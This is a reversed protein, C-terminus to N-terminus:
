VEANAWRALVARHWGVLARDIAEFVRPAHLRGTRVALFDELGVAAAVVNGVARCEFRSPETTLASMLGVIGGARIEYAGADVVGSVVCLLRGAPEGKPLVREGPRFLVREARDFPPEGAEVLDLLEHSWVPPGPVVTLMEALRRAVQVGVLNAVAFVGPRVDVKLAMFRARDIRWGRLARTVDVDATRPGGDVMAVEGVLAGPGLTALRRGGRGVVLEGDEVLYMADALDGTSFLRTGAAAGFRTAALGVEDLLCGDLARFLEIGHVFDVFDRVRHVRRDGVERIRGAVDWGSRFAHEHVHPSRLWGGAYWTRDAGQLREVWADAVERPREAAPHVLFRAAVVHRPPRHPNVSVFVDEPLDLRRALSRPWFTIAPREVDGLVYNYAGWAERDLPMLSSDRHVVVRARQWRMGAFATREAHTADELLPIVQNANTALVVHDFTDDTAFGDKEAGIRISGARRAVGLVRTGLRLEGPFRAAFAEPWRTMGGDLVMRRGPEGVIGHVHWFAVVARILFTEPPRAPMPFCGGARPVFWARLLEEGFGRDRLWDGATRDRFRPDELVELCTQNFRRVEAWLRAPDRATRFHPEGAAIWWATRGDPEAFSADQGIPGWTLGLAEFMERVHTFTVLNFDSVGADVAVGDV